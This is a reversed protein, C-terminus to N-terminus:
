GRLIRRVQPETQRISGTIFDRSIMKSTGFVVFIAHPALADDVGIRFGKRTEEIRVADVMEGSQEHVQWEPDHIGRPDRVSYPYGLKRLDQLTHDRLTINELIQEKIM